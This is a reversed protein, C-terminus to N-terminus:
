YCQGWAEFVISSQAKPRKRGLKQLMLFSSVRRGTARWLPPHLEPVSDKGLMCLARPEIGLETFYFVVWLFCWCQTYSVLWPHFCIVHGFRFSFHPGGLPTFISSLTRPLLDTRWDGFGVSCDMAGEKKGEFSTGVLLYCLFELLMYDREEQWTPADYLYM